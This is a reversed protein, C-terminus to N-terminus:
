ANDQRGELLPPAKAEEEAILRLLVRRQREDTTKALLKRFEAINHQRVFERM